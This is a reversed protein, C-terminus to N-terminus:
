KQGAPIEIRQMVQQCVGVECNLELQEEEPESKQLSKLSNTIPSTKMIKVKNVKKKAVNLRGEECWLDLGDKAEKEVKAGILPLM